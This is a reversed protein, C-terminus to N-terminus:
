PVGMGRFGFDFSIFSFNSFNLQLPSLALNVFVGDHSLVSTEQYEIVWVWVWVWVWLV